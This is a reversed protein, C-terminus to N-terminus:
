KLGANSKILDLMKSFDVNGMGQPLEQPGKPLQGQVQGLMGGVMNKIKDGMQDPNSPDIEDNGIKFKLDKLPNDVNLTPTNGQSTRRREYSNESSDAGAVSTASKAGQQFQQALQSINANPHEQKFANMVQAFKDSTPDETMEQSHGVGALRIIQNHENSSPDMKEIMALVHKVDDESANPFMGEKFDKVVKTKARTGGITFNREKANWFGAISKLIQDVGSDNSGENDDFGVDSPEMGCEAIIEALTKVGHGFDLQTELTAGAKKAKEITKKLAQGALNHVKGEPNKKPDTKRWPTESKWSGKKDEESEAVPAPAPMEAPAAAPMEAPAPAPPPALPAAEPPPANMDQGGVPGESSSVDLANSALLEQAIEQAGEVGEEEIDGNAVNTLYLKIAVGADDDGELGQLEDDLYDSDIITQLSSIANMGNVGAQLGPALLKQLDQLAATRVAVDKSFLRNKNADFGEGVLSDIFNEFQDEPQNKKKRARDQEIEYARQSGKIRNSFKRDKGDTGAKLHSVIDDLSKESYSRLTDDSIESILDDASVEVVPLEDENVFKAIYPFVSKLEENFTRVTLRDILDNQVEEPIIVEEQAEFSEVFTEYYASRQLKNITEKIEQIREIVRDTVSGMAESIQEQRSVFGKFKRLSALEESLNCIHKGIPDYPNGGHKIHEALARAGNLHKFPYKFREGDANEIYISEIHMTRGAPLDLNIPANHKVVLRAEGLDQYSMRANGYMKNEMIPPQAMVPEEKRKAQFQYDRKDLNSKGINQIDFNLLRDKAFQRFSRLFRYAGRHTSGDGDNVLDGSVQVIIGDSVDLTIAVTGLPKGNEEYEFEFFRANPIDEKKSLVKANEDGIKIDSFRTQIKGYLDLAIKDLNSEM